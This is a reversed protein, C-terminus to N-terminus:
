SGNELVSHDSPQLSEAQAYKSGSIVSSFVVQFVSMGGTGALVETM